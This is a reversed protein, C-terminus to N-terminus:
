SPNQLTKGCGLPSMKITGKLHKSLFWSWKRVISRRNYRKQNIPDSYAQCLSAITPYSSQWISYNQKWQYLIGAGSQKLLDGCDIGDHGGSASTYPIKVAGMHNVALRVIRPHEAFPPDHVDGLREVWESATLCNSLEEQIPQDLLDFDSQEIRLDEIQAGGGSFSWTRISYGTSFTENIAKRLPALDTLNHKHAFITWVTKGGLGRWMEALMHIEQFSGAYGAFWDHVEQRGYLTFELYATGADHLSTLRALWAKHNLRAFGDAPLSQWGEIDNERLYNAVKACDKHNLACDGVHTAVQDYPTDKSKLLAVFPEIVQVIEEYAMAKFQKDPAFLCHKCAYTCPVAQIFLFLWDASYDRKM